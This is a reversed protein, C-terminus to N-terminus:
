CRYIYLTYFALHLPKLHIYAASVSVLAPSVLNARAYAALECARKIEEPSFFLFFSLLLFFLFSFSIFFSSLFFLLM